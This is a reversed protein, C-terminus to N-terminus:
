DKPELFGLTKRELELLRQKIPLGAAYGVLSGDSGVVRHCPIMILVPNKNNAMGVARSATPKGIHEAVQKYSQTKGYPINQLASWVLQQFPSGSPRLPVTFTTRIGHFYEELQEAAMDTLMNRRYELPTIPEGFRIGTVANKDATIMIKGVDTHYVFSTGAETKLSSSPRAKRRFEGPSMNLYRGFFSYFASISEFGLMYAIEVIPTDSESLQRRAEHMRLRDTYEGPTVGFQEKFIEISRKPTVGLKKLEEFVHGKDLFGTDIIQRMQRALSQVPQYNILDPRCRKCPRFGTSEADAKTDFYLINSPKPLKSKCSPRCYIGTSKVAYYFKGDYATDNTSVATWKEENTM